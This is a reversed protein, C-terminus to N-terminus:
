TTRHGLPSHALKGGRRDPNLERRFNKRIKKESLTLNNQIMYRYDTRDTLTGTKNKEWEKCVEAVSRQNAVIWLRNATRM